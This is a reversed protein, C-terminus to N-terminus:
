PVWVFRSWATVMLQFEREWPIQAPPSMECLQCCQPESLCATPPEPASLFTFVTDPFGQADTRHHESQIM